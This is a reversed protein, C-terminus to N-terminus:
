GNKRELADLRQDIAKHKEPCAGIFRNVTTELSSLRQNNTDLQKVVPSIQERIEQKFSSILDSTGSEGSGVGELHKYSRRVLAGGGAGGVIVGILIFIVVLEITM